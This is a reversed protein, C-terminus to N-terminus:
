SSGDHSCGGDPEHLPLGIHRRGVGNVGPGHALSTVSVTERREMIRPLAAVYGGEAEGGDRTGRFGFRWAGVLM